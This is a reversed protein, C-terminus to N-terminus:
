AEVDVVEPLRRTGRARRKKGAKREVERMIRGEEEDDLMTGEISTFGKERGVMEPAVDFDLIRFKLLGTVKQGSGDVFFGDTTDDQPQASGERQAGPEAGAGAETGNATTAAGTAAGAAKTM